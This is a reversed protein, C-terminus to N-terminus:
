ASSPVSLILLGYHNMKDNQVHAPAGMSRIFGRLAIQATEKLDGNVDAVQDLDLWPKLQKRLYIRFGRLMPKWLTDKKVRQRLPVAEFVDERDPGHFRMQSIHALNGQQNFMTVTM